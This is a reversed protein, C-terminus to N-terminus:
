NVKIGADKILKGMRAIDSKIAAAFQDPSSAVVEEGANLLREKVDPLNFVRVIEQNLRNIIAGPTKVPAWM